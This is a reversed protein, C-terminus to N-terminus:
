DAQVNNAHAKREATAAIGTLCAICFWQTADTFNGGLLAFLSAGFQAGAAVDLLSPTPM